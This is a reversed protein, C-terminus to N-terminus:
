QSKAEMEDALAPLGFQRFSDELGRQRRPESATDRRLQEIIQSAESDHGAGAAVMAAVNPTAALQSSNRVALDHWAADAEAYRHAKILSGVYYVAYPFGNLREELSDEYLLYALDTWGEEAALNALQVYATPEDRFQLLLGTCVKMWLGKDEGQRSAHAQLFRLQASLLNPSAALFLGAALRGEDDNGLRVATDIYASQIEPNEPQAMRAKRLRAFASDRSGMEWDIQSLLPAASPNDALQPYHAVVRAAETADSTELVARIEAMQYKPEKGDLLHVGRSPLDARLLKLLEAYRGSSAYTDVLAQQLRPDEGSFGIGDRLTRVGENYRGAKLWCDALFLRAELNQPAKAVAARATFIAQVYDKKTWLVKANAFYYAGIQSQVRGFRPLVAVDVWSVDPIKRYASYYAWLSTALLLYIGLCLAFAVALLRGWLVVFHGDESDDDAVHRAWWRSKRTPGDEIRAGMPPITDPSM